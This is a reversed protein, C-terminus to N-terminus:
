GTELNKQIKTLDESKECFEHNVVRIQIEGSKESKEANIRIKRITQIQLNKLKLHFNVRSM